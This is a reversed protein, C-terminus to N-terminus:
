SGSTDLWVTNETPNLPATDSIIIIPNGQLQIISQELDLIAQALTQNTQSISSVEAAVRTFANRVNDVLSM